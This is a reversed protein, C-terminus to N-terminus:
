HHERAWRRAEAGDLDVRVFLIHQHGQPHVALELREGDVGRVDHLPAGLVRPVGRLEGLGELPAVGRRQLPYEFLLALRDLSVAVHAEGTLGDVRQPPVLDPQEGIRVQRQGQHLDGLLDPQLLGLSRLDLGKQEVHDRLALDIGPYIVDRPVHGELVVLVVQVDAHHVLHLVLQVLDHVEGLANGCELLLNDRALRVDPPAGRELPAASPGHRGQAAVVDHVHSRCGGRAASRLPRAEAPRQPVARM